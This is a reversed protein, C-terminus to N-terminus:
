SAETTADVPNRGDKVVEKVKVEIIKEEAANIKPPMLIVGAEEAQQGDSQKFLLEAFKGWEEHKRLRLAIWNATAKEVPPIYREKVKEGVLKKKGNKDYKYQKETEVVTYGVAQKYYSGVVNVIDTKERTELWIKNFEPFKDRYNKLSTESIGLKQCIQKQTLGDRLYAKIVPLNPMIIDDYINPKKVETDEKKPRGM